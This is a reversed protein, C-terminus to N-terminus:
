LDEFMELYRPMSKTFIEPTETLAKRLEEKKWWRIDQVEDEQMRFESIDKDVICSFWQAWYPYDGETRDIKM